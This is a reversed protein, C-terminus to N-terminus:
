YGPPVKKSSLETDRPLWPKASAKPGTVEYAELPSRKLQGVLVVLGEHWDSYMEQGRANREWDPQNRDRGHKILLDQADGYFRGVLKHVKEFDPPIEPSRAQRGRAHRHAQRMIPAVGDTSTRHLTIGDAQREIPHLGDDQDAFTDAMHKSYTLQVLKEVDLTPKRM